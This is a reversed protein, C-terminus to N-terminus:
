YYITFLRIYFLRYKVSIVKVEYIWSEKEPVYVPESIARFQYVPSCGLITLIFFLIRM